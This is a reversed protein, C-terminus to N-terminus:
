SVYCIALATNMVYLYLINYKFLNRSAESIYSHITLKYTSLKTHKLSVPVYLMNFYLTSYYSHLVTSVFSM